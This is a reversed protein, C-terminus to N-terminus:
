EQKVLVSARLLAQFSSTNAPEGLYDEIRELSPLTGSNATSETEERAESATSHLNVAKAKLARLEAEMVSSPLPMRRLIELELMISAADSKARSSSRLEVSMSDVSRTVKSTTAETKEEIKCKKSGSPRRSLHREISINGADVTSESDKNSAPKCRRAKRSGGGVCASFSPCQSLFRVAGM